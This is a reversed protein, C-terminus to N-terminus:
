GVKDATVQLVVLMILLTRDSLDLLLKRRVSPSLNSSGAPAPADELLEIVLKVGEKAFAQCEAKEEKPTYNGAPPHGVDLLIKAYVM